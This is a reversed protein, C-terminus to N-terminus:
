SSTRSVSSSAAEQLKVKPILSEIRAYIVREVLWAVILSAGMALILGLALGTYKSFHEGLSLIPRHVIYLGYSIPAVWAFAIGVRDFGRWGVGRWALAAVFIALGAILRRVEVVPSGGVGSESFGGTLGVAAALVLATAALPMAPLLGRWGDMQRELWAKAALVGTWWITMSFAVRLTWDPWFPYLAACLIAVATVIVTRTAWSKTTMMLLLFAVYFWWEYSLSWLPNNGMYPATWTGPLFTLDQTMALNGLLSAPDPDPLGGSILAQAFYSLMLAPVLPVFIRLFRARLYAVASLPRRSVSLAIVFGSLLFFLVVAEQGFRFLYSVPLGFLELDRPMAHHLMVYVAAGGRAAELREIRM